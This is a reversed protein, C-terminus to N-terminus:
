PVLRVHKKLYEDVQEQSIRVRGGMKSGLKYSGLKGQKIYKRVAFESLGLQQAVEKVSM